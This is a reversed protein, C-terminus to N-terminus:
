VESGTFGLGKLGSLQHPCRGLTGCHTGLGQSSPVAHLGGLKVKFQQKCLSCGWAPSIAANSM